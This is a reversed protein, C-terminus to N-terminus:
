GPGLRKHLNYLQRSVHDALDIEQSLDVKLGLDECLCLQGHLETASARALAVYRAFQKDTSSGAGECFNSVVSVASRKMQNALDGFAIEEAVAGVARVLELANGFVHYQNINTMERVEKRWEKSAVRVTTLSALWLRLLRLTGAVLVSRVILPSM